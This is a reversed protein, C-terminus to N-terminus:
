RHSESASLPVPDRVGQQVPQAPGAGLGRSNTDTMVRTMFRQGEGIREVEIAISEMAQDLRSFREVIDAPLAAAAQAGRRWIRRAYAISLPLLVVVMFLGGMVYPGPESENAQDARRDARLRAEHGAVATPLAAAASVNADAQALAKDVAVIRADMVQLRTELGQRDVGRTESNTLEETIRNRQHRLGELQERLEDRQAIFAEYQATPNATVSTAGRQVFVVNPDAVVSPAAPASPAPPVQSSQQM